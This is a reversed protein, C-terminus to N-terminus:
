LNKKIEKALKQYEALFSGDDLSLLSETLRDPIKMGDVTLPERYSIEMNLAKKVSNELNRGEMLDEMNKQIRDARDALERMYLSLKLLRKATTTKSKPELPKPCEDQATKLLHEALLKATTRGRKIGNALWQAGLRDYSSVIVTVNQRGRLRIALIQYMPFDDQQLILDGKEIRATLRDIGTKIRLSGNAETRRGTDLDIFCLYYKQQHIDLGVVRKHDALRYQINM